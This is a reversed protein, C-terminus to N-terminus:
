IYGFHYKQKGILMNQFGRNAKGLDHFLIAINLLGWFNTLKALIPLIPFALQFSRSVVELDNIHEELTTGDEISKALM